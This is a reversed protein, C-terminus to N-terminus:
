KDRDEGLGPVARVDIPPKTDLNLNYIQYTRQPKVNRDIDLTESNVKKKIRGCTPYNGRGM